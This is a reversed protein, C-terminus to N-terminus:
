NKHKVRELCSYDIQKGSWLLVAWVKIEEGSLYPRKSFLAYVVATALVKEGLRELRRNDAFVDEAASNPRRLSEHTYVELVLESNIEPLCPLELVSNATRSYEGSRIRKLSTSSSSGAPTTQAHQMLLPFSPNFNCSHLCGKTPARDIVNENM